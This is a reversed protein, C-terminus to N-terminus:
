ENIILNDVLWINILKNNEKIRKALIKFPLEVENELYSNLSSISKLLRGRSDKLNFHEILQKQENKYLRKGILSNLYLELEKLKDYENNMDKLEGEKYIITGNKTQKLKYNNYELDKKFSKWNCVGYSKYSAYKNILEQKLEKTLKINLYNDDLIFTLIYEKTYSYFKQKNGNYWKHYAEYYEGDQEITKNIKTSLKNIDHRCRNRVQTQITLNASDIIIFQIRNDKLDWGTDYAKNIILVDLNDPYKENKILYEKLKKQKDSMKKNTWLAEVKYGANLLMEKYKNCTKIQTTYILIKNGLKKMKDVKDKNLCLWKVDNIPNLQKITTEEEYQILKNIDNNNLLINYRNMNETNSKDIGNTAYYPTATLCILLSNISLFSLKDIIRSYTNNDETDFKYAYDFLNHFEDMVILDFHKYIASLLYEKNIIQGFQAYTLIKIAGINATVKAIIDNDKAQKFSKDDFVNAITEYKNLIKEKLMMTDCIYLVRDKNFSYKYKSQTFQTTNFIIGNEGFIFSTKGSGAPANLLNIYGKELQINKKILYDTLYYKGKM